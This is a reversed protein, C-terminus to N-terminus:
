RESGEKVTPGTGRTAVCWKSVVFNKITKSDFRYQNKGPNTTRPDHYGGEDEQKPFVRLSSLLYSGRSGTRLYKLYFSVM